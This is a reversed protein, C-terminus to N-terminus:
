KISGKLILVETGGILVFSIFSTSFDVALSNRRPFYGSFMSRIWVKDALVSLIKVSSAM